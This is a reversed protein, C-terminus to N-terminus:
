KDYRINRVKIMGEIQMLKEETGDNVAQDLDIITYAIDKQGKNIMNSINVGKEALVATIQGVM